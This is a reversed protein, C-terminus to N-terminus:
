SGGSEARARVLVVTDRRYPMLVPKRRPDDPPRVPVNVRTSDLDHPEAAVVFMPDTEARAIVQDGPRLQHALVRTTM